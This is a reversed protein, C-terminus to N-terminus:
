ERKGTRALVLDSSKTANADPPARGFESVLGYPTQMSRISEVYTSLTAQPLPTRLANLDAKRISVM